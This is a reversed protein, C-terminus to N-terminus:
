PHFLRSFSPASSAALHSSGFPRVKTYPDAVHWSSKVFVTEYPHFAIGGYTGHRSPHVNDNCGWHKPEAWNIDRAYRSMLTAVNYGRKLLALTMGYEGGVVVGEAASTCLKCTRVAFVGDEIAASIGKQDLAIAWSELRPGPGGADVDPLCVLSSGVAHINGTFRGMYAHSWHWTPPIYSPLFPGKVSSNLFFFYAYRQLPPVLLTRASYAFCFRLLLHTFPPPLFAPSPRFPASCPAHQPPLAWCCRRPTARPPCPAPRPAHRM